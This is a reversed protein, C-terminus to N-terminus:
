LHSGLLPSNIIYNLDVADPDEIHVSFKVYPTDLYWNAQDAPTGDSNRLITDCPILYNYKRYGYSDVASRGIFKINATNYENLNELRLTSNSLAKVYM